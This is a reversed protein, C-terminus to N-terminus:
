PATCLISMEFCLICHMAIFCFFFYIIYASMNCTCDDITFIKIYYFEIPSFLKNEMLDKFAFKFVKIFFAVKPQM